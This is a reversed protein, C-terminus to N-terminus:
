FICFSHLLIVLCPSFNYCIQTILTGSLFSLSLLVLLINSILSKFFMLGCASSVKGKGLLIFLFFIVNLCMVNLSSFVSNMFFIQFAALSLPYKENLHVFFVALNEFCRHFHSCLLIGLLLFLFIQWGLIRYM